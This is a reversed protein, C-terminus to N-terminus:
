DESEDSSHKEHKLGAVVVVLEGKVNRGEIQALLASFSGRLYEEFKKSIERAVCAQRDGLIELMDAL